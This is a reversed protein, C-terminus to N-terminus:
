VVGSADTIHVGGVSDVEFEVGNTAISTGPGIINGYMREVVSLQEATVFYQAYSIAGSFLSTALYDVPLQYIVNSPYNLNSFGTRFYEDNSDVIVSGYQSSLQPIISNISEEGAHEPGAPYQPTSVEVIRGDAIGQTIWDNILSDNKYALNSTVENRVTTTIVIKTGNAFLTDLNPDGSRLSIQGLAILVDADVVTATPM